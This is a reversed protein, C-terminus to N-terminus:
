NGDARQTRVDQADYTITIKARGFYYDYTRNKTLTSELDSQFVHNRLQDIATWYQEFDRVAGIDLTIKM